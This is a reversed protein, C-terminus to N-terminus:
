INSYVNILQIKATNSRWTQKQLSGKCFMDPFKIHAHSVTKDAPDGILAIVSFKDHLGLTGRWCDLICMVASETKAMVDSETKAM